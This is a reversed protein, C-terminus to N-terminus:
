YITYRGAPVFSGEGIDIYVASKDYEPDHVHVWDFDNNYGYGNIVLKTMQNARLYDMFDEAEDEEYIFINKSSGNMMEFSDYKMGFLVPKIEMEFSDGKVNKIDFTKQLYSAQGLQIFFLDIIKINTWTSNGGSIDRNPYFGYRYTLWFDNFDKRYIIGFGNNNDEDEIDYNAFSAGYHDSSRIDVGLINRAMIEFLANENVEKKWGAIIFEDERISKNFNFKNTCNYDVYWGQFEYGEYSPKGIPESVKDGDKVTLISFVQNEDTGTNKLFTVSWYVGKDNNPSTGNDCGYFTIGVTIIIAILLANSKKKM